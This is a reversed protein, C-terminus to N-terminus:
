KHPKSKAPSGLKPLDGDPYEPRREEARQEVIIEMTHRQDENLLDYFAGIAGPGCSRPRFSYPLAKRKRHRFIAYISIGAIFVGWLIIVVYEMKIAKEMGTEYGGLSPKM